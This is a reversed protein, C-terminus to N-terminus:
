ITFYCLIINRAPNLSLFKKQVAPDRDLGQETLNTSLSFGMPGPENQEPIVRTGAQFSLHHFHFWSPSVACIYAKLQSRCAADEYGHAKV